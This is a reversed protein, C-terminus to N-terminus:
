TLPLARATAEFSDAHEDAWANCAAEEAARFAPSFIYGVLYRSIQGEQRILHAVEHALLWGSPRGGGRVGLHVVRGLGIGAHWGPRGPNILRNLWSNRRIIYPFTSGDHRLHVCPRGRDSWFLDLWATLLGVSVIAGIIM